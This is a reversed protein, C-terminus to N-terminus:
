PQSKGGALGVREKEWSLGGAGFHNLEERLFSIHSLDEGFVEAVPGHFFDSSTSPSKGYAAM